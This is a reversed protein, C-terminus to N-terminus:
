AEAGSFEVVVQSGDRWVETTTFRQLSRPLPVHRKFSGVRIVLDDELHTVDIDEDAAFPLNVHLSHMTGVRRFAYPPETVFFQTPDTEAYLASGLERLQDLGVTERPFMPLTLVPVPAFYERIANVHSVQTRAWDSFYTDSSPLLRNIIVQDITMAYLNFYMYARQSERVVMKEANTVLRVTTIQPNRLLIDVGELQKFMGEINVFFGDEPAPLDTFASVLPGALKVLNRELRFRRRMYWRLTSHLNVFRLAESTPPADLVIVDYTEAKVHQNIYMLAVIDETGPLIAVEEAVAGDLGADMFVAALYQYVDQWHRQIEEQVEIEQIDLKDAVRLPLGKNQDFLGRDLDLADSLSHAIDISMVLTRYGRRASELGTAAAITTKGVGGKGSILIIRPM